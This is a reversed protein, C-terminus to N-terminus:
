PTPNERQHCEVDNQYRWRGLWSNVHLLIALRINIGFRMLRQCESKGWGWGNWEVVVVVDSSFRMSFMNIVFIFTKIHAQTHLYAGTFHYFGSFPNRLHLEYVPLHLGVRFLLHFLLLLIM